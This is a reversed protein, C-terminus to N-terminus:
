KICGLKQKTLSNDFYNIKFAGKIAYAHKRKLIRLFSAVNTLLLFVFKPLPIVKANSQSKFYSYKTDGEGEIILYVPLSKKQSVIEVLCNHFVNRTVCPLTSKKDGILIAIRNTIFKAIGKFPHPNDDAIIYGPRVFVIDFSVNNKARALVTDAVIKIIGYPGKQNMQNEIPSDEKILKIDNPYSSISSIQILRKVKKSECFRILSYAYEENEKISCGQLLIFNIVADIHEEILENNYLDKVPGTVVDGVRKKEGRSFCIVKHGRQKLLEKLGKSAYSHHGCILIVSM